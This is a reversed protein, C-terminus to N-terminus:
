EQMGSSRGDLTVALPEAMAPPISKPAVIQVPHLLRSEAKATALHIVQALKKHEFQTM